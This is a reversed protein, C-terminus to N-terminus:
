LETLAPGPIAVFARDNWRRAFEAAKSRDVLGWVSGGFGAGFSCSAFAGCERASRALAVTEPIQNGLLTEADTQSEAALRGIGAADFTRFARVAEAIRADERLFHDLRRELADPPWGAVRSGRVLQRLRSTREPSIAIEGLSDTHPESGNWVELLLRTGQSLRNYKHMETGTKRAAIGCPSLVFRWEAPVRVDDLHRMPVFRFAALTDSVGMVIAAHDESGGHTGVGADGALTGFSMGNELCGYYSALDIPSGINARWQPHAHLDGVRALASAIAVVLASSSSMGSARPLDSELVIDAGIPPGPFNRSFRRAVVEVYHRWGAHTDADWTHLVFTEGRRADVVHLEGDERQRAVVVFGRPVAAILTRGGAYDTHKGFVEIRGPVWWAFEPDGQAHDGFVRLVREFMACKASRESVDLGREILADALSHSSMM